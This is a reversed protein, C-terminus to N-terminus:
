DTRPKKWIIGLYRSNGGGFALTKRTEFDDFYIYDPRAEEQIQGRQEMGVTGAKVKVGTATTFSDM